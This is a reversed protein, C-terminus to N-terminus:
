SLDEVLLEGGEFPPIFESVAMTDENWWGNEKLIEAVREHYYTKVM